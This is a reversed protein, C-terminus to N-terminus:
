IVIITLGMIMFFPNLLDLSLILFALHAPYLVNNGRLSSFPFLEIFIAKLMVTDHSAGM